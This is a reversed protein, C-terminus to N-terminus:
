LGASTPRDELSQLLEACQSQSLPHNIEPTSLVFLVEGVVEEYGSEYVVEDAADLLEAWSSLEDAGIDGSQFRLILQTLASRSIRLSESSANKKIRSLEELPEIGTLDIM